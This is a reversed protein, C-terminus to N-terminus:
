GVAETGKTQIKNKINNLEKSVEDILAIAREKEEVSTFYIRSLYSQLEGLKRILSLFYTAIEPDAENLEIVLEIAAAPDTSFKVFKDYEEPASSQLNELEQVIKKHAQLLETLFDILRIVFM